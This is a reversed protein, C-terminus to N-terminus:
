GRSIRRRKLHVNTPPVYEQVYKWEPRTAATSGTGTASGIISSFEVVNESLFMSSDVDSAQVKGMDVPHWACGLAKISRYESTKVSMQKHGRRWGMGRLGGIHERFKPKCKRSDRERMWHGAETTETNNAELRAEMPEKWTTRQGHIRIAENPRRPKHNFGTVVAPEETAM